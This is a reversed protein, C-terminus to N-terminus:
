PAAPGGGATPPKGFAPLVQIRGDRLAGLLRTREVLEHAPFPPADLFPTTPNDAHSINRPPPASHAAIGVGDRVPSLRWVGSVRRGSASAASRELVAVYDLAAVAAPSVRLPSGTLSAVFGTASEAHATALVAFGREAAALVKHVAPGWLYVALHPSIENVLLATQGADIGADALFAFTEFCGRLYVRRTGDPLFALLASLLTTKGLGSPGAVVALSCRRSLAAWLVAATGADITGDRLLAAIDRPAPADWGPGWWHFPEEYHPAPCM